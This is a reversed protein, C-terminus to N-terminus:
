ILLKFSNFIVKIKKIKMKKRFEKDLYKQM